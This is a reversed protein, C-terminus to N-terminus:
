GMPSAARPLPGPRPPSSCRAATAPLGIRAARHVDLGVYSGGSLVGEGTHMGIRIRISAGDPWPEAALGRQTAVAAAIAHPASTFVVFFSDGETGIEV